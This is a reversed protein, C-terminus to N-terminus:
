AVETYWVFNPGESSLSVRVDVLGAVGSGRIQFNAEDGEIKEAVSEGTAHNVQRIALNVRVYDRDGELLERPGVGPYLRWEWLHRASIVQFELGDAPVELRVKSEQCSTKPTGCPVFAYQQRAKEVSWSNFSGVLLLPEKVDIRHPTSSQSPELELPDRQPLFPGGPRFRRDDPWTKLNRHPAAKKKAERSQTQRDAGLVEDLYGKGYGGAGEKGYFLDQKEEEKEAGFSFPPLGSPLDQTLDEARGPDELYAEDFPQGARDVYPKVEEYIEDFPRGKERERNVYESLTVSAEYAEAVARTIIQHLEKKTKDKMWEPMYEPPMRPLKETLVQAVGGITGDSVALADM